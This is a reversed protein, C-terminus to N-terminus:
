TWTWALYSWRFPEEKQFEVGEIKLMLRPVPSCAGPMKFVSKRMISVPSYDARSSIGPQLGPKLRFKRSFGSELATCNQSNRVSRDERHCLSAQRTANYQHISDAYSKKFSSGALGLALVLAM